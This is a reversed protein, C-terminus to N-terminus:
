AVEIPQNNRIMYLIIPAPIGFISLVTYLTANAPSYMRYLKNLSAISLVFYALSLLTGLVPVRNLLAVVLAALPLVMTFMPIELGFVNLSRLILALIYLDAIPVWALWPNAIGRRQAMTYLALSVLVYAAIGIVSFILTMLVLLAAM